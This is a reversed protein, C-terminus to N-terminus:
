GDEFGTERKESIGCLLVLTEIIKGRETKCIPHVYKKLFTNPGSLLLKESIIILTSISPEKKFIPSGILM